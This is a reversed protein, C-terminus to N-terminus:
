IDWLPNRCSFVANLGLGLSKPNTFHQVSNTIIGSISCVDIKIIM